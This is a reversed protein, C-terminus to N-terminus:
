GGMARKLLGRIGQSLDQQYPDAMMQGQTGDIGHSQMAGMLYNPSQQPVAAAMQRPPLEQYMPPHSYQQGQKDFGMLPLNPNAGGQTGLPLDMSGQQPAAQPRQQPVAQPRQEVVSQEGLKQAQELWWPASSTQPMNPAGNSANFRDDFSDPGASAVAPAQPVPATATPRSMKAAQAENSDRMADKIYIGVDGWGGQYPSSMADRDDFGARLKARRDAGRPLNKEKDRQQFAEYADPAYLLM